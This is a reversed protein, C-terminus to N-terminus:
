AAEEVNKSRQRAPIQIGKDIEFVLIGDELVPEFARTAEVPIEYHKCFSAAGIIYSKSNPQRRVPFAHRTAESTPQLGVARSESDFLLLVAKPEGLATYAAQNLSMNGRTQIAVRLAKRSAPTARGTFQEFKRVDAEWVCIECDIGGIIDGFAKWTLM